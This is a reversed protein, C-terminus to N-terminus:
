DFPRVPAILGPAELGGHNWGIGFTVQGSRTSLHSPVDEMYRNSGATVDLSWHDELYYDLTAAANASWVNGNPVGRQVQREDQAKGGITWREGIWCRAMVSGYVDTLRRLGRPHAGAFGAGDLQFRAGVPRHWEVSLGGLTRDESRTDTTVGQDQAHYLVSNYNTIEQLSSREQRAFLHDASYSLAPGVFFGRSRANGLSSGHTMADLGHLLAYPDLHDGVLAGDERLLLEVDRWFAKEPRDHARGYDSRISVLEALRERGRDTLPRTLAHDALWRQELWWAVHVASVDRVRGWGASVQVSATRLYSGDGSSSLDHNWIPLTDFGSYEFYHNDTRSWRQDDQQTASVGLQLAFPARAPYWREDAGIQVSEMASRERDSLVQTTAGGPWRDHQDTNSGDGWANAAVAVSWQRVDSDHLWRASLSTNGSRERHVFSETPATNSNGGTSGSFSFGLRYEHHDPVRFQEFPDAAHATRSTVLALALFIAIRRL